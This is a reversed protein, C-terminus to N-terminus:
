FFRHTLTSYTNIYIISKVRKLKTEAILKVNSREECLKRVREVKSPEKMKRLLTKMYSLEHTMQKYQKERGRKTAIERKM